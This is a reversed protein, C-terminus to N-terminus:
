NSNHKPNEEGKKKTLTRADTHTLPHRLWLKMLINCHFTCFCFLLVFHIAPFVFFPKVSFSLHEFYFVVFCFLFCIYQLIGRCKNTQKDLIAKTSTINGYRFCSLSLLSHLFFWTYFNCSFCICLCFNKSRLVVGYQPLNKLSKKLFFSSKGRKELKLWESLSSFSNLLIKCSFLRIKKFKLDFIPQFNSQGAYLSGHGHELNFSYSM